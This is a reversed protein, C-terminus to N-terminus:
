LIDSNRLYVRGDYVWMGMWLVYQLDLRDFIASKSSVWFGDEAWGFELFIRCFTHVGGIPRAGNVEVYVDNYVVSNTQAGGGGEM